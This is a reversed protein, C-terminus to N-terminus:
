PVLLAGVSAGSDDTGSTGEVPQSTFEGSLVVNEQPTVTCGDTLCSSAGTTKGYEWLYGTGLVPFAIQAGSWATYRGQSVATAGTFQQWGLEVSGSYPGSLKVSATTRGTKTATGHFLYFEKGDVDTTAVRTWTTNPESISTLTVTGPDIEAYLMFTNGAAQPVTIFSTGLGFNIGTGLPTVAAAKVTQANACAPALLLALTAATAALIKKM